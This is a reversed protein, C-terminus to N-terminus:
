DGFKPPTYVACPDVPKAYASTWGTDFYGVLRKPVAGGDVILGVNRSEHFYGREWNSTGIWAREGDVLLYKSHVVRGYPVYGKSWQPITALKVEVNALPELAQLGEITGKRMGWDAVLLQVSVGRSAARRLANEIDPFYDNGSSMKYTLLQVRVSKRAGDILAVIKPLDWSDTDALLAAPSAVPTIRAASAGEGIALPFAPGQYKRLADALPAGGALAWDTDFTCQWAATAARSRVLVGLEQIHELSRWDFNQSGLYTLAGDVTFYKAHLIGGTLAKIDYTRVTINARKSLRELVEPYTVQFRKEGLFRVKVGRDAAREIAEIVSTLKSGPADSAYFEAFDLSTRAGDIVERWVVDADRIDAHDLTTEVPFSEVLEISAAEPAQAFLALFISPIM